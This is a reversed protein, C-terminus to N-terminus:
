ENTILARLQRTEPRAARAPAVDRQTRQQTLCWRRKASRVHCGWACAGCMCRRARAGHSSCRAQWLAFVSPGRVGMKARDMVSGVSDLAPRADVAFADPSGAHREDFYFDIVYRVQRGDRREIYWDHRDFPPTGAGGAARSAARAHCRRASPPAGGMLTRWRARPSLDDPRGLFRLLAPPAGGGRHLQEWRLVQQWTMENMGARRAHTRTLPAACVGCLGPASGAPAGNHVSIIHEMDAETVDDGKGKRMLANYFMQPSPFVWTGATGGKPITSVARETSLPASQGPWPLQNPVVPMQNLPDLPQNYVNYATGSRQAAPPPADGGHSAM